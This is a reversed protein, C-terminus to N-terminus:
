WAKAWASAVASAAPIRLRDVLYPRQPGQARQSAAGFVAAPHAATKRPAFACTTWLPAGPSIATSSGRVQRSTRRPRGCRRSPCSNDVADDGRSSRFPRDVRGAVRRNTWLRLEVSSPVRSIWLRELHPCTWRRSRAREIRGRKCLHPASACTCHDPTPLRLVSSDVAVGNCRVFSKTSPAAGSRSIFSRPPSRLRLHRYDAQEELDLRGGRRVPSFADMHTTWLLRHRDRAPEAGSVGSSPWLVAHVEFLQGCRHRGRRFLSFFVQIQHTKHHKRSSKHCSKDVLSQLGGRGRHAPSHPADILLGDCSAASLQGFRDHRRYRRNERRPATAPTNTWPRPAVAACAGPRTPAAGAERRAPSALRAHRNTQGCRHQVAATRIPRQGCARSRARRHRPSAMTGTPSAAAISPHAFRAKDVPRMSRCHRQRPSRALSPGRSMAPYTSANADRAMSIWLHQRSRTRRTAQAAARRM